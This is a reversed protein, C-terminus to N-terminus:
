KKKASAPGFFQEFLKLAEPSGNVQSVFASNANGVRMATTFREAPMLANKASFQHDLAGRQNGVAKFQGLFEAEMGALGQRHKRTALVQAYTTHAQERFQKSKPEPMKRPKDWHSRALKLEEALNAPSFYGALARLLRGDATLILTQVNHDGLGRALDRAADTCAHPHSKGAAPDSAINVWTCVFKDNLLKKVEAQSLSVARM